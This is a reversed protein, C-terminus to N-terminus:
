NYERVSKYVKPSFSGVQDFRNSVRVEPVEEIDDAVERFM